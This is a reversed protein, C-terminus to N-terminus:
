AREEGSLNYELSEIEQDKQTAHIPRGLAALAQSKTSQGEALGDLAAHNIEVGGVQKMAGDTYWCGQLLIIAIVLCLARM